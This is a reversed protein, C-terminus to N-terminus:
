ATILSSIVILLDGPKIDMVDCGMYGRSVTIHNNYKGVVLVTEKSPVVRLVDGKWVDMNSPVKQVCGHITSAIGTGLGLIEDLTEEM